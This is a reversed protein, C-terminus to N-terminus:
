PSWSPLVSFKLTSSSKTRKRGARGSDSRLRIADPDFEIPVLASAGSGVESERAARPRAGVSRQSSTGVRRRSVALHGAGTGADSQAQGGRGRRATAGTTSASTTCCEERLGPLVESLFSRPPVGAPADEGRPRRLQQLRRDRTRVSRLTGDAISGIGERSGSVSPAAHRHRCPCRAPRAIRM